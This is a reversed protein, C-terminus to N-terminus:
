NSNSFIEASADEASVEICAYLGNGLCEVRRIEQIPELIQIFYIDGEEGHGFRHAAHCAACGEVTITQVFEPDDTQFPKVKYTSDM